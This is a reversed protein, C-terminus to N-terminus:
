QRRRIARLVVIAAVAALIALVVFIVLLGPVIPDPPIDLPLLM